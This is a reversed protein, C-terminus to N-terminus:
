RPPATSGTESTSFANVAAPTNSFASGEEYPTESNKRPRAIRNATPPKREQGSRQQDVRAAALDPKCGGGIVDSEGVVSQDALVGIRV